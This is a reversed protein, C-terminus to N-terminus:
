FPSLVQGLECLAPNQVQTEGATTVLVWPEMLGWLSKTEIILFLEALLHWMDADWKCVELSPSSM